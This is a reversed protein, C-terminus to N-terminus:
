IFSLWFKCPFCLCALGDLFIGYIREEVLRGTEDQMKGHLGDPRKAIIDSSSAISGCDHKSVQLPQRYPLCTGVSTRVTRTNTNTLAKDIM